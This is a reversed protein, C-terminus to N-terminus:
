PAAPPDRVPYEEPLTDRVRLSWAALDDLLDALVSRRDADDSPDTTEAPDAEFDDPEDEADYVLRPDSVM